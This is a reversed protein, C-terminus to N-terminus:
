GSRDVVFPRRAVQVGVSAKDGETAGEAGYVAALWKTSQKQTLGQRDVRIKWWLYQLKM